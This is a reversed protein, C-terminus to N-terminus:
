EVEISSDSYGIRVDEQLNLGTPAIFAALGELQYNPSLIDPQLFRSDTIPLLKVSYNGYYVTINQPYVRLPVDGTNVWKPKIVYVDHGFLLALGVGVINGNMISELVIGATEIPAARWSFHLRATSYAILQKNQTLDSHCPQINRTTQCVQKTQSSHDSIATVATTNTTILTLSLLSSSIAASLKKSSSSKNM